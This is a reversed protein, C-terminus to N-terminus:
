RDPSPAGVYQLDTRIQQYKISIRELCKAGDDFLKQRFRIRIAGARTIRRESEAISEGQQEVSWSSEADTNDDDLVRRARRGLGARALAGGDTGRTNVAAWSRSQLAVRPKQFDSAVAVVYTEVM